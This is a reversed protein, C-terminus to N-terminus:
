EDPGIQVRAEARRKATGPARIGDTEQELINQNLAVRKVRVAEVVTTRLWASTGWSIKIDTVTLQCVPMNLVRENVM